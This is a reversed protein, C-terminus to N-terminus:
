GMKGSYAILVIILVVFALGLVMCIRKKRIFKVEAKKTAILQMQKKKTGVPDLDILGYKLKAVTSELVDVDSQDERLLLNFDDWMKKIDSVDAEIAFLHSKRKKMEDADYESFKPDIKQMKMQKEREEKSVKREENENKSDMISIIAREKDEIKHCIEEFKQIQEKLEDRWNSATRSTIVLFLKEIDKKCDIRAKIIIKRLEADDEKTGLKGGLARFNSTEEKLSEMWASIDSEKFTKGVGSIDSVISARDSNKDWKGQEIDDDEMDGYNHGHYGETIKIKEERRSM